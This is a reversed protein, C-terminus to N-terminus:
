LALGELIRGWFRAAIERIQFQSRALALANEATSPDVGENLTALLPERGPATILTAASHRSLLQAAASDAPGHYLIPVGSSLYTVLKTSLSFRSFSEYQPEFPLPLYLLDSEAFDGALTDESTTFPLVRVSIDSPIEFDPIVGCRLILEVPGLSPLASLLARFNELYSLHFLGMFYVRVSGRNPRRPLDACSEIGDTVIAFDRSGYRRNYEAGLETSICFRATANQWLPAIREALRRDGIATYRVDDHVTLFFPLQLHRAAEYAAVSDWWHAISHVAAVNMSELQDSLRVSYGPLLAPNALEFLRNFRTHEVRGFYPRYPLHIESVTGAEPPKRPSTVISIIEFPSYKFLSRLIRSGGGPAAVGFPQVFGIRKM